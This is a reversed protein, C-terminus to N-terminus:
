VGKEMMIHPCGEEEFPDGFRTFGCTLYFGEAQLQAGLILRKAGLARAREACASLILRGLGEGRRSKKVCIRGVHRTKEGDPFLRAVGVVAGDETVLLHDCTKDRADFEEKFGQEEIFVEQRLSFCDQVAPDDFSLWRTETV